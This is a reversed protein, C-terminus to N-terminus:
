KLVNHEHGIRRLYDWLLSRSDLHLLIDEEEPLTVQFGGDARREDMMNVHGQYVSCYKLLDDIKESINM